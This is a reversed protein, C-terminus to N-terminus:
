NINDDFMVVRFQKTLEILNTSIYNVTFNVYLIGSGIFNGVDSSKSLMLEENFIAVKFFFFNDYM